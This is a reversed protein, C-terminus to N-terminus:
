ALPVYAHMEDLMAHEFDKNRRAIKEPVHYGSDHLHFVQLAALHKLVQEKM